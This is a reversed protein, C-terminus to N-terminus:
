HAYRKDAERGIASSTWVGNRTVVAPRAPPQAAQVLRQRKKRRVSLRMEVCLRWVRKHNVARGARRLLATLRRYGFRPRKRAMERLEQKLEEDRRRRARYRCSSRDVEILECARRQSVGFKEILLAVDARRSVLEM